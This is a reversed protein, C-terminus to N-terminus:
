TIRRDIFQLRYNLSDKKRLVNEMFVINKQRDLQKCSFFDIQISNLEPYTHISIHSEKLIGVSTYGQYRSNFIEDPSDNLFSYNIMIDTSENQLRKNIESNHDFRKKVYTSPFVHTIPPRVLTHENYDCWDRIMKEGVMRDHLITAMNTYKIDLLIHTM